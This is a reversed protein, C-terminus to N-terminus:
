YGTLSEIAKLGRLVRYSGHNKHTLMEVRDLDAKSIHEDKGLFLIIHISPKHKRKKHPYQKEIVAQIYELLKKFPYHIRDYPKPRGPPLTRDLGLEHLITKIEVIRPPLGQSRRRKNEEFLWAKAKREAETYIRKRAAEKEASWGAERLRREYAEQPVRVNKTASSSWRDTIIFLTDAQMEMGVNVAHWGNTIASSIPEIPNKLTYNPNRVGLQKPDENFPQVWDAVKKKNQDTAPVMQLRFLEIKRNEYLLVNFLTGPSLQNVRKKIEDKIIRYAHLGGKDDKLLNKRADVIFLIREGQSEIGFFNVASAGFGLSNLSFGTGMGDFDLNGLAAHNDVAPLAINLSPININSVPTVAIHQPRPRSSARQRKQVKLRYEVTKPEIHQRLPPAKFGQEPAKMWKHITLGGFILGGILHVGLSIGLVLLLPRNIHKISIIRLSIPILQVLRSM